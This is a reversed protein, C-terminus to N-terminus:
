RLKMSSSMKGVKRNAYQINIAVCVYYSCYIWVFHSYVLELLLLVKMPYGEDKKKKKKKYSFMVLDM